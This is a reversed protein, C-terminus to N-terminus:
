SAKRPHGILQTIQSGVIALVISGFESEDGLKIEFGVHGGVPKIM